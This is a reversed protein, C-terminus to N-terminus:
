PDLDRFRSIWLLIVEFFRRFGQSDVNRFWGREFGQFDTYMIRRIWTWLGSSGHEFGQLDIVIVKLILLWLGYLYM